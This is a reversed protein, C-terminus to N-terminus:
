SEAKKEQFRPVGIHIMSAQQARLAILAGRVRYAM